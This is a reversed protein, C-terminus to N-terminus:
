EREEEEEVEYALDEIDFVENFDVDYIEGCDAEQVAQEIIEDKTMPTDSEIHVDINGTIPVIMNYIYKM